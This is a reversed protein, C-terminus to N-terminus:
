RDRTDQDEPRKIHRFFEANAFCPVHVTPMVGVVFLEPLIDFDLVFTGAVTLITVRFIEVGNLIGRMGNDGAFIAVSRPHIVGVLNGFELNIDVPKEAKTAVSDQLVRVTVTPLDPTYIRCRMLIGIHLTNGAVVRM